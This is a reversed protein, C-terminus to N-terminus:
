RSDEEERLRRLVLEGPIAGERAITPKNLDVLDVITSPRNRPLPGVDVIVELFLKLTEPLMRISYVPENGSINASTSTIPFGASKVLRLAISNGPIRAAIAYPNLIRPVTKKKRLAITLPGPMFDRILLMAKENLYAYKNWMTIDAMIVPIPNRLDRGKVQFVRRVAREDVANAGIAYSSETPYIVLGGNRLIEIAKKFQAATIRPRTPM